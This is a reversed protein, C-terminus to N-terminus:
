VLGTTCSIPEPAPVQGQMMAGSRARQRNQRQPLHRRALRPEARHLLVHVRPLQQRQLQEHARELVRVVVPGRQPGLHAARSLWIVLVRHMQAMCSRHKRIIMPLGNCAHRSALSLPPTSILLPSSSRTCLKMLSHTARPLEAPLQARRQAQRQQAVARARVVLGVRGGRAEKAGDQQLRAQPARRKRVEEEATECAALAAASGQGEHLGSVACAAHVIRQSMDECLLETGHLGEQNAATVAQRNAVSLGLKAGETHGARAPRAELRLQAREVRQQQQARQLGLPGLGPLQGRRQARQGLQAALRLEQHSARGAVRGSLDLVAAIRDGPCDTGPRGAPM